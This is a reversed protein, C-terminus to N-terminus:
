GNKRLGPGDSAAADESKPSVEVKDRAEKAQTILLNFQKTICDKIDDASKERFDKLLLDKSVIVFKALGENLYKEFAEQCSESLLYEVFDPNKLAAQTIERQRNIFYKHYIIVTKPNNIYSELFMNIFIDPLVAFRMITNNVETRIDKNEALDKTVVSDHENRVTKYILGFWNWLNDPQHKKDIYPLSRLLEPTVRYDYFPMFDIQTMALSKDDKNRIVGINGCHRDKCGIIIAFAAGSGLEKVKGAQAAQKFEAKISNLSEFFLGESFFALNDKSLVVRSKPILVSDGPNKNKDCFMLRYFEAALLANLFNEQLEYPLLEKLFWNKTERVGSLKEPKLNKKFITVKHSFDNEKNSSVAGQPILNKVNKFLSPKIDSIDKDNYKRYFLLIWKALPDQADELLREIMSPSPMSSRSQNILHDMVQTSSNIQYHRKINEWDSGFLYGLSALDSLFPKTYGVGFKLRLYSYLIMTSFARIAHQCMNKRRKYIANDEPKKEKIYDSLYKLKTYISVRPYYKILYALPDNFIEEKALNDTIEHYVEICQEKLSGNIRQLLKNIQEPTPTQSMENMMLQNGDIKYMAQYKKWFPTARVFIRQDFEKYPNKNPKYRIFLDYRLFLFCFTKIVNAIIMGKQTKLKIEDQNDLVTQQLKEYLSQKADYTFLHALSDYIPQEEDQKLDGPLIESGASSGSQM